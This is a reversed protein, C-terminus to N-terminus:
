SSPDQDPYAIAKGAMSLVKRGGPYATFLWGKGSNGSVAFEDGHRHVFLRLGHYHADKECKTCAALFMDRETM